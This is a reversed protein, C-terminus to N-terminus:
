VTAAICLFLALFFSSPPLLFSGTERFLHCRLCFPFSSGRPAGPSLSIGFPLDGMVACFTQRAHGLFLSVAVSTNGLSFHHHSLGCLFCSFCHCTLKSLISLIFCFARMREVEIWGSKRVGLSLCEVFRHGAAIMDQTDRLEAGGSGSKRLVWQPCPASIHAGLGKQAATTGLLLLAWCEM